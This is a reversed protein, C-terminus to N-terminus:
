KKHKKEEKLKAIEKSLEAVQANLSYLSSVLDQVVKDNVPKKKKFSIAGQPTYVSGIPLNTNDKM